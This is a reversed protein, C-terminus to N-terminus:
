EHIAMVPVSSNFVFQKSDSQHFLGHKKPFVLVLDAKNKESFRAIGDQVNNNNVFHFRPNLDQLHHNLFSAEISHKAFVESSKNVHVVHLSAKFAAVIGTIKELPLGYISKLDSALVIKRIPKFHVGEPIVLVPYQIHKTIYVTISGTFFRKFIGKGHTAMVIAFPNTYECIKRLENEIFGFVQKANIKIKSNTRIILEKKLDNLKQEINIEKYTAETLPIENIAVPSETAHLILLKANIAAAMDAAYNVANLSIESFDTPAIITQM